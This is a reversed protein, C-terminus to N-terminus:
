REYEYTGNIARRENASKFLLFVIFNEMYPCKQSSAQKLVNARSKELMYSRLWDVDLPFSRAVGGCSIIPASLLTSLLSPAYYTGENPM